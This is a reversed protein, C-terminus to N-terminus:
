TNWGAHKRALFLRMNWAICILLVAELITLLAILLTAELFFGEPFMMLLYDNYPDLQWLNNTFSVQHFLIFIPRWAVLSVLGIGLVLCILTLSATLLLKTLRQVGRSFSRLLTLVVFMFLFSGSVIQAWYIGLILGKVDRMHLTERENYLSVPQGNLTITLALLDADSNFYDRIQKAARELQDPSINTVTTIDHREFGYTYLRPENVAGGVNTTVLFVPLMLIFIVAAVARIWNM